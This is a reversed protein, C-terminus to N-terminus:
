VTIMFELYLANMATKIQAMRDDQHLFTSFSHKIQLSNKDIHLATHLQLEIISFWDTLSEKIFSFHKSFVNEMLM